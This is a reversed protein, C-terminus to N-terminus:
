HVKGFRYGPIIHGFKEVKTKYLADINDNPNEIYLPRAEVDIGHKAIDAIKDPNNTLLTIKEVGHNKLYEAIEEFNRSEPPVGIQCRSEYTDIGSQELATAKVKASLGAGRGDYRLYFLIGCGAATMIDMAANLQDACDCFDSAFTEAFVCESNIRVMPREQEFPRGIQVVLDGDAAQSFFQSEVALPGWRRSNFTAMAGPFKFMQM